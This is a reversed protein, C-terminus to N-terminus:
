TRNHFGHVRILSREELLEAEAELWHQVANGSRSGENLYSFYARRAVEDAAPGFLPEDPNSGVASTGDSADVAGWNQDYIFGKTKM